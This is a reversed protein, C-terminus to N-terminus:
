IQSYHTEDLRLETLINLMTSQIVYNETISDSYSLISFPADTQAQGITHLDDICDATQTHTVTNATTQLKPSLGM